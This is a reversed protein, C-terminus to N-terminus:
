GGVMKNFDGVKLTRHMGLSAVIAGLTKVLLPKDAYNISYHCSAYDDHDDLGVAEFGDKFSQLAEGELRVSLKNSTTRIAMRIGNFIAVVTYVSGPSTGQVAQGITTADSLKVVGKVFEDTSQAVQDLDVKHHQSQKSTDAGSTVPKGFSEKLIDKLSKAFDTGSKLPVPSGEGDSGELADLTAAIGKGPTKLIKQAFKKAEPSISSPLQEVAKQMMAASDDVIDTAAIAKKLLNEFQAQIAYKSAPGLNGAKALSIATGKVSVTGFTLTDTKIVFAGPNTSSVMIGHAKAEKCLEASVGFLPLLSYGYSDGNKFTLAM